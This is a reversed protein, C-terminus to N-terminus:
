RKDTLVGYRSDEEYNIKGNKDYGFIKWIGYSDIYKSTKNGYRDNKYEFKWWIGESNEYNLENGDKDYEYKEWSLVGDSWYEHYTVNGKKDYEHKQWEIESDGYFDPNSESYIQNGNKDLIETGDIYYLNPLIQKLFKKIESKKTISLNDLKQFYPPGKKLYEIAYNFFREKAEEILIHKILNKM